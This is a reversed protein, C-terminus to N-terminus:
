TVRQFYYIVNRVAHFASFSLINESKLDSITDSGSDQGSLNISYVTNVTIKDYKKRNMSSLSRLKRVESPHVKMTDSVSKYGLLLDKEVPVQKTIYDVMIKTDAHRPMELIVNCHSSM